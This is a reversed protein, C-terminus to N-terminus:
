RELWQKIQEGQVSDNTVVPRLVCDNSRKLMADPHHPCHRNAHTFRVTCRPRGRRKDAESDPSQPGSSCKPSSSQEMTELWDPKEQLKWHQNESNSEDETATTASSPSLPSSNNNKNNGTVRVSTFQKITKSAQQTSLHNESTNSNVPVLSRNVVPVAKNVMINNDSKSWPLLSAPAPTSSSSETLPAVTNTTSDAAASINLM